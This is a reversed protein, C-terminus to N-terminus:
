RRVSRKPGAQMARLILADFDGPGQAIAASARERAEKSSAGLNVLASQLDQAVGAAEGSDVPAVRGVGSAISRSAQARRSHRRSRIPTYEVHLHIRYRVIYFLMAATSIFLALNFKVMDRNQAKKGQNFM